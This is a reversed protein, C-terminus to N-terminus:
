EDLFEGGVIYAAAILLVGFLLVPGAAIATIWFIFVGAFFLTMIGLGVLIRWLARIM